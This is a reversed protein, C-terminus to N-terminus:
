PPQNRTSTLKLEGSMALMVGFVSYDVASFRLETQFITPPRTSPESTTMAESFKSLLTTLESTETVTSLDSQDTTTSQYRETEAMVQILRFNNVEWREFSELAVAKLQSKDCAWSSEVSILAVSKSKCILGRM